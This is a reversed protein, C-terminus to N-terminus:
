KDSLYFRAYKELLMKLKPEIYTECFPKDRNKQYYNLYKEDNLKFRQFPYVKTIIPKDFLSAKSALIKKIENEESPNFIYIASRYKKRFSHNSTANHTLLHIEILTDIDILSGDFYVIVAESLESAEEVSASIWGQEVKLVGLLTTFVAETCWHCGGGFAIKKM